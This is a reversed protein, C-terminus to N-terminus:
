GVPYRTKESLVHGEPLAVFLRERFLSETVVGPCHGYGALLAVDLRRSVLAAYLDHDPMEHM